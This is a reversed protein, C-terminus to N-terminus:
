RLTGFVLAAVAAGLCLGVVVQAVTHDDLVTRSWAAALAMLGFALLWPGFLLALVVTTGGAVAAHISVKWVRSVALVSALGAGMAVVLALLERPANWAVLVVVGVLLSGLAVALVMPRRERENVHHTSWSGARAGRVIFAFPVGAAFLAAVLGWALASTGSKATDLAVVVLLASALVAPATAETVIRAVRVMSAPRPAALSKAPVEPNTVDGFENHLHPL